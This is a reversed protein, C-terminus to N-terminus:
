AVGAPLGRRAEAREGRYLLAESIGDVAALVAEVCAARVDDTFRSAPPAILVAAIVRGDHARIPAAAAAGGTGRENVSTAYSRARIERVQARLTEADRVTTESFPVLETRALYAEVEADPEGALLVKGVASAYLPSGEGRRMVRRFPQTTEAVDLAVWGDGSRVTLCVSENVRDRAAVIFPRAVAVIDLQRQLGEALDLVRVGLTYRGEAGRALVLGSAQLTRLFRFATPVSLGTGAAIETLTQPRDAAALADLVSVAREVARIGYPEDTM